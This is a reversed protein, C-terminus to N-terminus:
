GHDDELHVLTKAILTLRVGDQDRWGCTHCLASWSFGLTSPVVVAEVGGAKITISQVASM